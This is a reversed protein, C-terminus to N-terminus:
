FPTLSEKLKKVSQCLDIRKFLYPTGTKSTRTSDEFPYYRQMVEPVMDFDEKLARILWSLGNRHDLQFFQNKIDIASAYFQELDEHANFYEEILLNMDKSVEHRSEKVVATLSDNKLEEATFGSRSVSWDVLPLSNLHHLFAPIENFLQDEIAHNTHVPIGLKRVFFRIEKSDVLAFKDEYNSTLIIKGYFPIMYQAVYKENITIHKQTALAKLKEMTLKKEFLTEEIAIINKRGYHNFSSLFDSSSLMAMNDGFLMNIWNLFTTKGTQKLASVLVLIVTQREPQQYLIQIYKLGQSYQPGFVHELLYKTWTWDGEKPTHKFESYLNYCNNVVPKFNINDPFMVFDDM